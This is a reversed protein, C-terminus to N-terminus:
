LGPDDSHITIVNGNLQLLYQPVFFFFHPFGIPDEKKNEFHYIDNKLEYALHGFKWGKYKKFFENLRNIGPAVVSAVAGAALLCDHQHPQISYDANDLFCFIDFQKTWSLM